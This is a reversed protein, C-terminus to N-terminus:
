LQTKRKFRGIISDRSLKKWKSKMFICLFGDYGYDVAILTFIMINANLYKNKPIHINNSIKWLDQSNSLHNLLCNEEM